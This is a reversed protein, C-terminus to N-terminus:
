GTPWSSKLVSQIFYINFELAIVEVDFAGIIVQYYLLM